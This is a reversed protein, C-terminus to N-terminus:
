YISNIDVALSMMILLQNFYFASKRNQIHDPLVLLNDNLKEQRLQPPERDKLIRDNNLDTTVTRKERLVLSDLISM